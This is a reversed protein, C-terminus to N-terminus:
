IFKTVKITNGERSFAFGTSIVDFYRGLSVDSTAVATYLTQNGREEEKLLTEIIKEKIRELEDKLYRFEEESLKDRVDGLDFKYDM